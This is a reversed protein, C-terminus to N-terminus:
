RQNTKMTRRRRWRGRRPRHFGAAVLAATAVAEYAADAEIIRGEVEALEGREAEWDARLMAREARRGAELEHFFDACDASISGGGVYESTVRGGRRVSRYEYARGRRIVFSM